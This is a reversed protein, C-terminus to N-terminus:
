YDMAGINPMNKGTSLAQNTENAEEVVMCETTTMLSAVGSADVLATRVVKTPDIIGENLMDVFTATQANFGRRIDIKSANILTSVVLGGESGANDSITRCPVQCAKKIINIGVQQDFNDVKLNKLALSAYLLACGGGPVIGEEIAARTASLADIVRDKKESVEVESTGGIKIVAVGGSLKALRERAKETEYNSTSNKIIERIIDCREAIAEPSGAGGLMITDESSVTLKKIQGLQNLKIEELKIGIDTSVVEGGTLIALDQLIAKRNDGFGPARIAVVQLGNMRNLALTTLIDSEVGDSAIILLRKRNMAIQELIPLMSHISNIKFDTILVHVDEMEVKQTKKDTVFHHSLYGQDLRMGEVVEIENELGKGDQITIVGEKGVRSIANALLEGIEHDSNASIIAVQKIEEHGEIPKSIKKLEDVVIQTASLIGRRVDMPNCGSAVAKVGEEFIGRMLVTATTTGDGAVDNTTSAVGRVLQAGLNEHKNAFEVSKAVTVGDKTIKPPGYSQELIVNRGKPGLTVAVADSIKQVGRLMLNRADSGFRLDKGTAYSRFIGRSNRVLSISKNVCGLM